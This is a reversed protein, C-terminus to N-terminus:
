YIQEQDFISLPSHRSCFSFLHSTESVMNGTKDVGMDERPLESGRGTVLM